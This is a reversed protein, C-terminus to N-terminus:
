SMRWCCRILVTNYGVMNATFTGWEILLGPNNELCYSQNNDTGGSKWSRTWRSLLSTMSEKEM